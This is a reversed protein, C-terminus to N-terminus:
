SGILRRLLFAFPPIYKLDRPSSTATSFWYLLLIDFVYFSALWLLAEDSRNFFYLAACISLVPFISLVGWVLEWPSTDTVGKIEARVALAYWLVACVVSTAFVITAGTMYDDRVWADVPVDTIAIIGSKYLWPQLVFVLGAGLITIVLIRLVESVKM